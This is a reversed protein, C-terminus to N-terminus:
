NCASDHRSDANGSRNAACGDTGVCSGIGRISLRACRILSGLKLILSRLVGKGKLLLFVILALLIKLRPQL